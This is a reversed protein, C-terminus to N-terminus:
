LCAVLLMQEHYKVFNGYQVSKTPSIYPRIYVEYEQCSGTAPVM